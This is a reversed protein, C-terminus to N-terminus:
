TTHELLKVNREHAALADDGTAEGYKQVFAVLVTLVGQAVAIGLGQIAAQTFNGATVFALLLRLVVVGVGALLSALAARQATSLARVKPTMYPVQVMAATNTAMEPAGPLLPTIATIHTGDHEGRTVMARETTINELGGGGTTTGM